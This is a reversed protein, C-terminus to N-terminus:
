VVKEKEPDRPQGSLMRPENVFTHGNKCTYITRGNDDKGVAKCRWSRDWPCQVGIVMFSVLALGGIILIVVILMVWWTLLPNQAVSGLFVPDVTLSLRSKASAAPRRSDTAMITFTSKGVQRPEGSIIGTRYDLLLGAPLEGRELSWTYPPVGGIPALAINYERRVIGNALVKTSISLPELADETLVTKPRVFLLFQKESSSEAADRVEISFRWDGSAVPTGVLRDGQLALGPPLADVVSWFYPEDGGTAALTVDYHAGVTAQTMNGTSIELPMNGIVRNDSPERVRLVLRKKLTQAGGKTSDRVKLVFRFTGQEAPTGELLGTQKNLEVNPPLDGTLMNWRYPGNGGIAALSIEYSAGMRADPLSDTLIRFESPTVLGSIIIFFMLFIFIIAGISNALVDVFSLNGFAPIEAKARRAM